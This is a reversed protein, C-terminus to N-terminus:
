VSRLLVILKDLFTYNLLLSIQIQFMEILVNSYWM